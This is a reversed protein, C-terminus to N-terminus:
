AIKIITHMARDEFCGGHQKLNYSTYLMNVHQTFLVNIEMKPKVFIAGSKDNLSMKEITRKEQFTDSTEPPM